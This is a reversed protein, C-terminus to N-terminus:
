MHSMAHVTKFLEDEMPVEASMLDPQCSLVFHLCPVLQVKLPLYDDSNELHCPCGVDAITCSSIPAMRVKGDPPDLVTEFAAFM